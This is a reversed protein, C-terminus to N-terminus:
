GDRRERHPQPKRFLYGWFDCQEPAYFIYPATEIIFERVLELGSEIACNLLDTRNLCWGLYETDLGHEYPRQVMVYSPVNHVTPLRTIFLYDSTARALQRLLGEWDKAYHFSGSVLILDYTRALAADSDTTFSGKRLLRQGCDIFVQLDVCTYDIDLDPILARSFLYYHGVGGGWDLLSLRRKFRAALALAYGYSLVINHFSINKHDNLEAEPSIGLPLRRQVMEIFVPWRAEYTDLLAAVNWGKIAPDIEEMSWGQPMYEWPLVTPTAETKAPMPDPAAGAAGLPVAPQITESQVAKPKAAQGAFRRAFFSSILQDTVTKLHRDRAQRYAIALIPPVFLKVTQKVSTMLKKERLIRREFGAYDTKLWM